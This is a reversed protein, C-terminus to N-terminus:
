HIMMLMNHPADILGTIIKKDPATASMWISDEHKNLWIRSLFQKSFLDLKNDMKM